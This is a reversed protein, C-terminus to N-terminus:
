LEAKEVTAIYIMASRRSDEQQVYSYTQRLSPLPEKGLVQVRIQDYEINLGILFDYIREKEVLKQFRVADRPCDKQFDLYYDFEQWLGYL